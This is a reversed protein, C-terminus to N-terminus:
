NGVLEQVNPNPSLFEIDGFANKRETILESVINNGFTEKWCDEITGYEIPYYYISMNQGFSSSYGNSSVRGSEAFYAAIGFDEFQWGVLFSHTSINNNTNEPHTMNNIMKKVDKEDSYYSFYNPAGYMTSMIDLFIEQEKLDKHAKKFAVFDDKSLGFATSNLYTVMMTFQNTDMVEGVTMESVDLSLNPYASDEVYFSINRAPEDKAAEVSDFITTCYPMGYITEKTIPLDIGCFKAGAPLTLFEEESFEHSLVWPYQTIDVDVAVVEDTVDSIESTESDGDTEITTTKTTEQATQKNENRGCGVLGTLTMAAVVVCATRRLTQKKM